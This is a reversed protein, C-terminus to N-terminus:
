QTTSTPLQTPTTPGSDFNTCKRQSRTTELSALGDEPLSSVFLTYVTYVTTVRGVERPPPFARCRVDRRSLMVKGIIGCVRSAVFHVAGSPFLAATRGCLFSKQCQNRRLGSRSPVILSQCFTHMIAVCFAIVSRIRSFSSLLRLKKEM